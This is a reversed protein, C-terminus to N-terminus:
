KSAAKSKKAAKKAAKKPAAKVEPKKIEAINNEKKKKLGHLLIKAAKKVRHNFKKDGLDKKYDAFLTELKKEIENKATNKSAPKLKSAKKTDTM